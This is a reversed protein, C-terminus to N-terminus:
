TGVVFSLMASIRYCWTLVIPKWDPRCGCIWSKMQMATCVLGEDISFIEPVIPNDSALISEMLECTFNGSDVRSKFTTTSTSLTAKNLWNLVYYPRPLPEGLPCMSCEGPQPACGCVRGFVRMLECDDSDEDLTSAVLGWESCPIPSANGLNIVKDGFLPAEGNRCLSCLPRAGRQQATPEESNEFINDTQNKISEPPIPLCGCKEGVDIQASTCQESNMLSTSKLFSELAECDLLIGAGFGSLFDTAHYDDLTKDLNTANSGDWCLTCANPPLNCECFSRFAQTADCLESDGELFSAATELEFCNYLPINYKEPLRKKPLSEPGLEGCVRCTHKEQQRARQQAATCPVLLLILTTALMCIHVCIMFTHTHNHCCATM